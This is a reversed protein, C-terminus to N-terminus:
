DSDRCLHCAAGADGRGNCLNYYRLRKGPRIDPKERLDQPIRLFAGLMGLGIGLGLVCASKGQKKKRVFIGVCVLMASVIGIEGVTRTYLGIVEGLAYALAVCFVPRKM